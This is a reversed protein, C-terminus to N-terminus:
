PPLFAPNLGLETFWRALDDRTVRGDFISYLVLHGLLPAHEM